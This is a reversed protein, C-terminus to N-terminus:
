LYEYWENANEKRLREPLIIIRYWEERCKIVLTLIQDNDNKFSRDTSLRHPAM